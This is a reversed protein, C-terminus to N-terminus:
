NQAWPRKAESSLGVLRDPYSYKLKQYVTPSVLNQWALEEGSLLGERVHRSRPGTADDDALRVIVLGFEEQLELCAKITSVSGSFVIRRGDNGLPSQEFFMALSKIFPLDPYINVTDVDANEVRLFELTSKFLERSEDGTLFNERSLGFLNNAVGINLHLGPNEELIKAAIHAHKLLPPQFRGFYYGELGLSMNYASNYCLRTKNLVFM